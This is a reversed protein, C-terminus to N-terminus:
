RLRRWGSPTVGFQQRFARSFHSSDKFGVAHAIQTVSLTSAERLRQAALTLRREWLHQGLTKGTQSFANDLHRRSMRLSSALSEATVNAIDLEVLALAGERLAARNDYTRSQTLGGLLALVAGAAWAVGSESLAASRRALVGLFDSLLEEDPHEGYVRATKQRLGSYRNFLGQRPLAVVLQSGPKEMSLSFPLAGDVLTFQGAGICARSGQQTINMQGSVQMLVKFPRNEPGPGAHMELSSAGVTLIQPSNGMFFPLPSPNLNTEM